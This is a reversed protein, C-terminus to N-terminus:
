KRHPSQETIVLVQRICRGFHVVFCGDGGSRGVPGGDGAGPVFGWEEDSDHVLVQLRFVLCPSLFCM